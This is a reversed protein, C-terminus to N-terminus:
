SEDKAARMYHGELWKAISRVDFGADRIVNRVDRRGTGNRFALVAEAWCGAGKSLPLHVIRKTLDVSRPVGDSVVCPLDSAQAEVAATGFGETFSPM